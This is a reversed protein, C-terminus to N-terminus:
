DVELSLNKKLKALLNRTSEYDINFETIEAKDNSSKIRSNYSALLASTSDILNYESIINNALNTYKTLIITDMTVFFGESMLLLIIIAFFATLLKKKLGQM